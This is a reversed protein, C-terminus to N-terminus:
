SVSRRIPEPPTGSCRSRPDVKGRYTRCVHPPWVRQDAKASGHRTPTPGMYDDLNVSVGVAEEADQGSHATRSAPRRPASDAFAPSTAEPDTARAGASVSLRSLPLVVRRALFRSGPGLSCSSAARVSRIGSGVVGPRRGNTVDRREGGRARREAAGGAAGFRRKRVPV